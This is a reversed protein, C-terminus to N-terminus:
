CRDDLYERTHNSVTGVEITKTYKLTGQFDEYVMCIAGNISQVGFGADNLNRLLTRKSTEKARFPYMEICWNHGYWDTIDAVGKVIYGVKKLIITKMIGGKSIVCEGISHLPM